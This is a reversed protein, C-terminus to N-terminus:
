LVLPSATSKGLLTLVRMNTSLVLTKIKHWLITSQNISASVVTARGARPVVPLTQRFDGGFVCVKGGFPQDCDMIDRFARDVAEFVHRHMM